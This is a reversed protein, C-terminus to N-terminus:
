TSSWGFMMLNNQMTSVLSCMTHHHIMSSPLHPSDCQSPLGVADECLHHTGNVVALLVTNCTPVDFWVVDQQIAFSTDSQTVKAQDDFDGRPLLEFTTAHHTTHSLSPGDLQIQDYRVINATVTPPHSCCPRTGLFTHTSHKCGWTLLRCM